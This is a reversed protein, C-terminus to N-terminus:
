LTDIITSTFANMTAECMRGEGEVGTGCVFVCVFVCINEHVHV